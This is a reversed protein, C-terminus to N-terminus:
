QVNGCSTGAKVGAVASSVLCWPLKSPSGWRRASKLKESTEGTSCFARLHPMTPSASAGAPTCEAMHWIGHQRSCACSRQRHARPRMYQPMCQQLYQQEVALRMPQGLQQQHRSALDQGEQM